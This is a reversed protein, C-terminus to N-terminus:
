NRLSAIQEEVLAMLGKGAPSTKLRPAACSQLNLGPKPFFRFENGDRRAEGLDRFRQGTADSLEFLMYIADTGNQGKGNILRANVMPM